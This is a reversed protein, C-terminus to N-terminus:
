CSVRWIIIHQTVSTSSNGCFHIVNRNASRSGVVYYIITALSFIIVASLCLCQSLLSSVTEAASSFFRNASMPATSVLFEHPLKLAIGHDFVLNKQTISSLTLLSLFFTKKLINSTNITIDNSITVSTRRNKSSM